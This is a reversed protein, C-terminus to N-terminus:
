WKPCCNTRDRGPQCHFNTSYSPCIVFEMKGWELYYTALSHPLDAPDNTINDDYFSVLVSTAISVTEEFSIPVCMHILVLVILTHLHQISSVSHVFGCYLSCTVVRRNPDCCVDEVSQQDIVSQLTRNIEEIGSQPHIAASNVTTCGETCKRFTVPIGAPCDINDANTVQFGFPFHLQKMSFGRISIRWWEAFTSRPLFHVRTHFCSGNLPVTMPRRELPGKRSEKTQRHVKARPETRKVHTGGDVVTYLSHLSGGIDFSSENCEFGSLRYFGLVIHVPVIELAYYLNLDSESLQEVINKELLPFSDCSDAPTADKHSPVLHQPVYQWHFPFVLSYSFQAAKTTYIWFTTHTWM